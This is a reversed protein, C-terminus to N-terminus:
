ALAVKGRQGPFRAEIGLAAMWRNVTSDDVGLEEGIERQTKGEDVYRRELFTELPEGIRQEVKLMPRTKLYISRQM